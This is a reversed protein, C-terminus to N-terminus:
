GARQLRSLTPPFTDLPRLSEFKESVRGGRPERKREVRSALRMEERTALQQQELAHVPLFDTWYM